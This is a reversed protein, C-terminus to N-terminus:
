LFRGLINLKMLEGGYEDALLVDFLCIFIYGAATLLIAKTILRDDNGLTRM